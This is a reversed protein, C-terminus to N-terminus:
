QKPKPKWTDTRLKALENVLCTAMSLLEDQDKPGLTMIKKTVNDSATFQISLVKKSTLNNLNSPINEQNKFIFHFYGKCNSTGGNKYTSRLKGGEYTIIARSVDNFCLGTNELAFFIDMENKDASVSVMFKDSGSGFSKFGTTLRPDQNFQDKENRLSCDQAFTFLPLLLFAFFLYKMQYHNFWFYM